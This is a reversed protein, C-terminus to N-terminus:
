PLSLVQGNVSRAFSRSNASGTLCAYALSISAVSMRFLTLAILHRLQGLALPSAERRNSVVADDGRLRPDLKTGPRQVGAVAPIITKISGHAREVRQEVAAQLPQDGYQDRDHDDRDRQLDERTEELENRAIDPGLLDGAEAQHPQDHQACGDRDAVARM